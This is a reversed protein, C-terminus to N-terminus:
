EPPKTFGPVAISVAGWSMEWDLPNEAYEVAKSLKPLRRLMFELDEPEFEGITM